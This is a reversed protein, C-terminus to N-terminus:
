WRLPSSVVRVGGPADVQLTAPTGGSLSDFRVWEDVTPATGATDRSSVLVIDTNGSGNIATLFAPLSTFVNPGLGVFGATDFTALLTYGSASAGPLYDATTLGGASWPYSRAEITFDTTSHDAGLTGALTLVVNGAPTLGTTDFSVYGLLVHYTSGSLYQGVDISGSGTTVSLGSGARAAAYTVNDSSDATGDTGVTVIAM